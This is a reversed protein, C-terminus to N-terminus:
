AFEGDSMGGNFMSETNDGGGYSKPGHHFHYMSHRRSKFKKIRLELHDNMLTKVKHCLLELTPLKENDSDTDNDVGQNVYGQIEKM